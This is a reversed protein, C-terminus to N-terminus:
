STVAAPKSLASRAMTAIQQAEPTHFRYELLGSWDDRYLAADHAISLTQEDAAFSLKSFRPDDFVANILRTRWRFAIIRDDSVAISGVFWQRKWNCARGPARFNRFTISCFLHECVVRRDDPLILADAESPLRAIGLM